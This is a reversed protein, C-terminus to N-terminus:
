KFKVKDEADKDPELTVMRVLQELIEPRVFSDSLGVLSHIVSAQVHTYIICAHVCLTHRQIIYIHTTHTTKLKEMVASYCSHM